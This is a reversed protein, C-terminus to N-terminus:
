LLHTEEEPQEFGHQTQVESILGPQMRTGSARPHLGSQLPLVDLLDVFSNGNMEALSTVLYTWLASKFNRQLLILRKKGQIVLWPGKNLLMYLAKSRATDNGIDSTTIALVQATIRLSKRQAGVLVCFLPKKEEVKL